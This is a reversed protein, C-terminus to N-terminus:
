SAPLASRSNAAPMAYDLRAEFQWGTDPGHGTNVIATMVQWTLCQRDALAAVRKPRCDVSLLRGGKPLLITIVFLVERGPRPSHRHHYHWVGDDILKSDWESGEPPTAVFMASVLGGPPVPEPLDGQFVEFGPEKERGTWHIEVQEGQLILSEIDWGHRRKWGWIRRDHDLSNVYKVWVYRPTRGNEDIDILTHICFEGELLDLV